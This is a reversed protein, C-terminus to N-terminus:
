PVERIPCEGMNPTELLGAFEDRLCKRIRSKALYVVNTTTGLSEAAETPTKGEIDVLKFAGWDRDSFRGRIINVAQRYLIRTEESIDDTDVSAFPIQSMRLM